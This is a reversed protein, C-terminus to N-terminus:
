APAAPGRRRARRAAAAGGGLAPELAARSRSATATSARRRRAGPLAPVAAAAAAATPTAGPLLRRWRWRRPLGRSARPAAPGASAPPLPRFGGPLPRTAPSPAAPFGSLAAAPASLRISRFATAASPSTGSPEPRFFTASGHRYHLPQSCHCYDPFKKIRTGPPLSTYLTRGTSSESGPLSAYHLVKTQRALFSSGEWVM